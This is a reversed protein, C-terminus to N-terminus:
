RGALEKALSRWRGRAAQAHTALLGLDPLRDDPVRLVQADLPELTPFAELLAPAVRSTADDPEITLLMADFLRHVDSRLLLGARERHVPQAAYSYLHAADLVELPQRGTVACVDGYRELLKGRFQDQHRRMRARTAVLGGYRIWETLEGSGAAIGVIEVGVHAELFAPARVPDLRRIANQQDPSAFVGRLEGVPVPAVFEIWSDGYYASFETVPEEGILPEDFTAKCHDCRYRPLARLRPSVKVRSCKPCRRMTKSAARTDITTVVGWGYALHDDRVVLADGTHVQRSNRVNSDYEYREGLEDGYRLSLPDRRQHTFCSWFSPAGTSRLATTTM